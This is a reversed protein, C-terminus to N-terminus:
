SKAITWLSSQRSTAALIPPSNILSVIRTAAARSRGFAISSARAPSLPDHSTAWEVARKEPEAAPLFGLAPRAESSGRRGCASRSPRSGAFGYSWASAAFRSSRPTRGSGKAPFTSKTPTWGAGPTKPPKACCRLAASGTLAVYADDTEHQFIVAAKGARWIESAKRSRGDTVFRITWEDKTSSARRRDWRDACQRPRGRADSTNDALVLARRAIARAAGALLRRVEDNHGDQAQSM